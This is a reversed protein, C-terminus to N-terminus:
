YLLSISKSAIELHNTSTNKEPNYSCNLFWKKNQLNIKLESGDM